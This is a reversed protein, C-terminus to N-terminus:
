APVEDLARELDILSDLLVAELGELAEPGRNGRMFGLRMGLAAAGKMDRAVSDGIMWCNEPNAGLPEYAAKFIAPDPKIAGVVNSDAVAGFLESLGERELISKLNGYFNSVIGLKWRRALRELVPRNRRFELRSEETFRQAVRASITEDIELNRATDRCQLAVTEALDLGGLQHREHLHDDSDYFARDFRERPISVGELTYLSFFREPWHIGNSDLTGGFDFLLAQVSPVSMPSSHPLTDVTFQIMELYAKVFL